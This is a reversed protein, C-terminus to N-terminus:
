CGFKGMDIKGNVSVKVGEGRLLTVQLVRGEGELAIRGDARIIRHWPLAYKESMSHLTRVVQRAGNPLGAKAAIDRYSCVKGKPVALIQKIIKETTETM